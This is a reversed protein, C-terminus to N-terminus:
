TSRSIRPTLCSECMSECMAWQAWGVAWEGAAARKRGGAVTEQPIHVSQPSQSACHLLRRVADSRELPRHRIGSVPVPALAVVRRSLRRDCCGVAAQPVWASRRKRQRVCRPPAAQEVCAARCRAPAESARRRAQRCPASAVAGASPARAICAQPLEVGPLNATAAMERAALQSTAATPSLVPVKAIPPGQVTIPLPRTLATHTCTCDSNCGIREASAQKRTRTCIIAACLVQREREFSGHLRCDSSGSLRTAAAGAVPPQRRERPHAVM